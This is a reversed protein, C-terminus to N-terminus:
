QEVEEIDLDLYGYEANAIEEMLGRFFVDTAEFEDRAEIIKEVTFAVKFKKM